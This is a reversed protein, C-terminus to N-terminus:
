LTSLTYEFYEFNLLTFVIDISVTTWTCPRCKAASYNILTPSTFKVYELNPSYEGFNEKEGKKSFILKRFIRNKKKSNNKQRGQGHVITCLVRFTKLNKMIKPCMSRM